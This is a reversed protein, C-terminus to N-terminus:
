INMRFDLHTPLPFEQEQLAIVDAEELQPNRQRILNRYLASWVNSISLEGERVDELIFKENIIAAASEYDGLAIYAMAYYMRVRSRKQAFEPFHPFRAILQEFRKAKDMCACYDIYLNVCTDNMSIAKDMLEAVIQMSPNECEELLLAFSRLRQFETGETRCREAM